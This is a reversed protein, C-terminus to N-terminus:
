ENNIVKKGDVWKYFGQGSKKGLKGSKVMIRLLEPIEFAPSIESSQLYEAIKLRTDLGVYDTLELPGMPHRYGLTMAKDIAEPSAIDQEIMRIAELGLLVGLRSTAFGPSDKVKIPIKGLDMSLKWIIDIVDNSTFKSYVIEILEMIPPPNFWHMGIILSPNISEISLEELSLSSTNSAIIVTSKISQIKKIMEKKLELQEPVCEIVIDAHQLATSLDTSLSLRSLIEHVDQLPFVNKEVLRLLRNEISKEAKQVIEESIDLLQTNFGATICVQAIGSGMQGSGIILVRM